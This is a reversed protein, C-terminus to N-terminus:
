GKFHVFNLDHVRRFEVKKSVGSFKSTSATPQCNNCLTRWLAIASLSADGNSDMMKQSYADYLLRTGSLRPIEPSHLYCSISAASCCHSVHM